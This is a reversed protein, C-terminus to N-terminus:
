SRLNVAVYGKEIADTLAEFATKAEEFMERKLKLDGVTNESPMSDQATGALSFAAELYSARLKGVVVAFALVKDRTLHSISSHIIEMNAIRIGQEVENMFRQLEVFNPPSGDGQMVM